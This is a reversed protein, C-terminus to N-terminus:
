CIKEIEEVKDSIREALEKYPYTARAFWGSREYEILKSIYHPIEPDNLYQNVNQLKQIVQYAKKKEYIWGKEKLELLGLFSKLIEEFDKEM